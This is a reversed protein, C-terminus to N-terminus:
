LRGSTWPTGFIEMSKIAAAYVSSEQRKAERIAIDSFFKALFSVSGVSLIGLSPYDCLSDRLYDNM